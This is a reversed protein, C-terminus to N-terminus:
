FQWPGRIEATNCPNVHDATYGILILPTITVFVVGDDSYTVSTHEVNRSWGLAWSM